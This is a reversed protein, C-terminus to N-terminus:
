LAPRVKQRKTIADALKGKADDDMDETTSGGPFVVDREPWLEFWALFIKPWYRHFTKLRRADLFDPLQSRLFADQEATVWTGPAMPGCQRCTLRIGHELSM